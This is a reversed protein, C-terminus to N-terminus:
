VLFSNFYFGLCIYVFIQKVKNKKDIKNVIFKYLYVLLWSCESKFQSVLTQLKM